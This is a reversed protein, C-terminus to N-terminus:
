KKHRQNRKRATKNRLSKETRKGQRTKERSKNAKRLRDGGRRAEAKLQLLQDVAKMTTAEEDVVEHGSPPVRQKSFWQDPSKSHRSIITLDNERMARRFGSLTKYRAKATIALSNFAQEISIRESVPFREERLNKEEVLTSLSRDALEENFEEAIDPDAAILLKRALEVAKAPKTRALEPDLQAALSALINADMREPKRVKHCEEGSGAVILM